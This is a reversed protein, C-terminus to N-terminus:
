SEAPAPTTPLTEEVKADKELLDLVKASIIQEQIEGFGNREQLQKVMKEPKIQYQQALMLIRQTVEDAEAKIGEKEAIRGLVFAAKVREKASTNAHSFIQDKQRDIAEKTVGRQQNERVIDYVVNRTESLVVSEPLDCTVRGLLEKMLQERVSRKIKYGLENQLDTVVGARLKEANEAGFSQAFEDTLEPVIKEKVQVVEVEYVGKKGSLQPAVFDAPFDVNVTRKEGAQAGVLQETFGPIFSNEAVHLWFDKKETLGRATPATETIPKGECTGTYNVVVFDGSQVARAVDNYVARQERLVNLAREVDEDTVVAMEKKVPLGKYDPLEFEPATELTAAFQLAQGKGFQIEEIDPAGVVHLKNDAIAKRYNESILKRKVEDDIQPAYAKVVLHRPAKGHRFGPLRAQRQFEKTIEEFMADVTQPEVEVRVLKKCPALNEVTVNM